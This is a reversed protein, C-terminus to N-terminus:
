GDGDHTVTADMKSECLVVLLSAGRSLVCVTLCHAMVPM